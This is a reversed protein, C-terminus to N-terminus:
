GLQTGFEATPGGPQSSALDDGVECATHDVIEEEVREAGEWSGEGVAGGRDGIHPLAQRAASGEM